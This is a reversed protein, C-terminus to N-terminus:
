NSAAESSAEAPGYRRWPNSAAHQFYQPRLKLERLREIQRERQNRREIAAANPLSSDPAMGSWIASEARGLREVAEDIKPDATEVLLRRGDSGAKSIRDLKAQEAAHEAKFASLPARAAEVAEAHRREFEARLQEEVEAIAAQEAEVLSREQARLEAARPAVDDASAIARSADLRQMALRRDEHFKDAAVGAQFAAQQARLTSVGEDLLVALYVDAATVAPAETTSM